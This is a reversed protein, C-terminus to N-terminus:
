RKIEELAAMDEAAKDTFFVIEDTLMNEACIARKNDIGPASGEIEYRYRSYEMYEETLEHM